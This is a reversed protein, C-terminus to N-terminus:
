PSSPDDSSAELQLIESLSYSRGHIAQSRTWFDLAVHRWAIELLHPEKKLLDVDSPTRSSRFLGSQFDLEDCVRMSYSDPFVLLPYERPLSMLERLKELLPSSQTRQDEPDVPEGEM